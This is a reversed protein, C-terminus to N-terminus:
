LSAIHANGTNIYLATEDRPLSLFSSVQIQCRSIMELSQKHRPVKNLQKTHQLAEVRELIQAM